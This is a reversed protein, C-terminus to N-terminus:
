ADATNRLADVAALEDALEDPTYNVYAVGRDRLLGLFDVRSIGLLQAAKGSSIHGETFLSLVIWENLRRQIEGQDIGFQLLAQPVRVEFATDTM